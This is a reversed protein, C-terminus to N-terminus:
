TSVKPLIDRAVKAGYMSLEIINNNSVLIPTGEVDYVIDM